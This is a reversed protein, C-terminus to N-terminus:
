DANLDISVKTVYITCFHEMKASRRGQILTVTLYFLMLINLVITDRTM